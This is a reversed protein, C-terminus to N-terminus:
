SDSHDSGSSNSAAFQQFYFLPIFIGTMVFFVALGSFWTESQTLFAKILKLSNPLIRKPLRRPKMSFNSVLLMATMIYGIIRLAQSYGVIAGCRGILETGILFAFVGVRKSCNM